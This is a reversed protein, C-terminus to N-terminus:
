LDTIRERILRVIERHNHTDQSRAHALANLGNDDLLTYDARYLLLAKAAARHGLSAALILPTIGDNNALNYDVGQQALYLFTNNDNNKVAYLLPTNGTGVCFTSIFVACQPLNPDAGIDLLYQVAASYGQEAAALLPTAGINDRYNINITNFSAHNYLHRLIDVNGSYAAEIFANRSNNNIVNVSIGTRKILFDVIETRGLQAALILPTNDDANKHNYFDATFDSISTIDAMLSVNNHQIVHQLLNEGANNVTTMNIGPTYALLRGINIDDVRQASHFLATNGFNDADNVDGGLDMLAQWVASVIAFDAHRVAYMLPSFGGIVNKQYPLTGIIDDNNQETNAFANQASLKKDLEDATLIENGLLINVMREDNKALARMLASEGVNNVKNPNARKHMYVKAAQYVQEDFNIYQEGSDNFYQADYGGYSDNNVVETAWHLMTWGNDDTSELEAITGDYLLAMKTLDNSNAVIALTEDYPPSTGQIATCYDCDAALAFSTALAAVTLIAIKITKNM